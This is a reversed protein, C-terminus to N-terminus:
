WKAHNSPIREIGRDVTRFIHSSPMYDVRREGAAALHDQKTWDALRISISVGNFSTQRMKLRHEEIQM